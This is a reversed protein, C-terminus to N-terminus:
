TGLHSCVNRLHDDGRSILMVNMGHSAMEYAYASGIGRSAGTIVSLLFWKGFLLLLAPCCLCSCDDIWVIM